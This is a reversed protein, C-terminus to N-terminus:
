QFRTNVTWGDEYVIQHILAFANNTQVGTALVYCLTSPQWYAPAEKARAIVPYAPNSM